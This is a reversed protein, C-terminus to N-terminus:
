EEGIKTVKEAAKRKWEWLATLDDLWERPVRHHTLTIRTMPVSRSGFTPSLSTLETPNPLLPVGFRPADPGDQDVYRNREGTWGTPIRRQGSDVLRL